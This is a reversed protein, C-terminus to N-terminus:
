GRLSSRSWFPCGFVFSLLAGLRRARSFPQLFLQTDASNGKEVFCVVGEFFSLFFPLFLFPPASPMLASRSLTEAIPSFRRLLSFFVATTLNLVASLSSHNVCYFGCLSFALSFTNATLSFFLFFLFFVM